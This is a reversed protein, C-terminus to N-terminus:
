SGSEIGLVGVSPAAALEVARAAIAEMQQAREERWRPLRYAAVGMSFLGMASMVALLLTEPKMGASFAVVLLFM